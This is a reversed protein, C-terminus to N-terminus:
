QTAASKLKTLEGRLSKVEEMLSTVNQVLQQFILEKQVRDKMVSEYTKPIFKDIADKKGVSTLYSKTEETYDKYFVNYIFLFLFIIFLAIVLKERMSMNLLKQFFSTSEVPRTAANDRDRRSEM